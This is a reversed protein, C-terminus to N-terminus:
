GEKTPTPAAALQALTDRRLDMEAAVGGRPAWVRAHAASAMALTYGGDRRLIAEAADAHGFFELLEVAARLTMEAAVTALDHSRSAPCQHVLRPTSM